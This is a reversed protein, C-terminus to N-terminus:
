DPGAGISDKRCVDVASAWALTVRCVVCLAVCVAAPGIVQDATMPRAAEATPEREAGCERRTSAPAPLWLVSYKCCPGLAKEEYRVVSHGSVDAMDERAMRLQTVRSVRAGGNQPGAAPASSRTAASRVTSRPLSARASQSHARQRHSRCRISSRLARTTQERSVDSQRRGYM